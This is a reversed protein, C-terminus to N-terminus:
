LSLNPFLSYFADLMKTCEARSAANSARLMGGSGSIIGNECAWAVAKRAYNSVDSGDAWESLDGDSEPQGSARYLIVALQERTIDRDPCFRGDGYGTILGNENAWVVAQSYYRNDPIDTFLPKYETESGYMRYLITVAQCRTINSDPSFNNTETGSVFGLCYMHSIYPGYWADVSVDDFPAPLVSFIQSLYSSRQSIYNKLYEVNGELSQGGYAPAKYATYPWLRYNM